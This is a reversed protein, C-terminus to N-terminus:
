LVYITNVSDVYTKKYGNGIFLDDCFKYFNGGKMDLISREYDPKQELAEVIVMKPKWYKLDFCELVEEESGECDLTFVEFNPKVNNEYLMDDLKDIKVNFTKNQYRGKAWEIQEYADLMETKLTTLSIADYLIAEGKYNSLAKEIIIVDNPSRNKYLERIKNAYMPHPEFLIGNWGASILPYSNSWTYGDHAGVDVVFGNTIYGFYNACIGSYNAIQNENTTKYFETNEM